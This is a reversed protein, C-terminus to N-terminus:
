ALSVSLVERWATRPGGFEAIHKLLHILWRQGFQNVVLFPGAPAFKCLTSIPWPGLRREDIKNALERMGLYIELLFQGRDPNNNASVV